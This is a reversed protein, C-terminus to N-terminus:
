KEKYNIRDGLLDLDDDIPLLRLDAALQEREARSLPRRNKATRQRDPRQPRSPPYLKRVPAPINDPSTNEHQKALAEKVLRDVDQQTYTADTKAITPPTERRFNVYLLGALVCFTLVAFVAAGKLWLPSLDFFQRFAAVASRRPPTATSPVFGTLVEDRWATISERVQGFSAAEDRCNACQQLHSEFARTESADMENYLFAMLDSSRECDPSDTKM